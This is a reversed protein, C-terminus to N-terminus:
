KAGAKAKQRKAELMRVAHVFDDAPIDEIETVKLYSLFVDKDAKVEAVLRALQEAQKTTIREAPEAGQGDDDAQGSALGTAAFLTYRELYTIASNMAQLNNKSGSEDRSSQLPTRTEFGDRHTLVCTVRIQGGEIQELDWRHSIGVAALGAIIQDCLHGLTTHDYETFGQGSKHAIKVHKDKIIKPPNAKFQAMADAFAQKALRALERERIDYLKLMKDADVNPDRAANAIVALIGTADNVAPIRVANSPREREEPVIITSPNASM